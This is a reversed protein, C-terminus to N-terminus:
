KRTRPKDGFVTFDWARANPAAAVVGEASAPESPQVQLERLVTATDYTSELDVVKGHRVTLVHIEPVEFEGDGGQRRGFLRVLV